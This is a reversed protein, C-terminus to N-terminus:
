VKTKNQLCQKNKRLNLNLKLANFAALHTDSVTVIVFSPKELFVLSM